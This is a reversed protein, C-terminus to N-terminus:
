RYPQVALEESTKTTIHSEKYAGVNSSFPAVAQIISEASYEFKCHYLLLPVKKTSILM